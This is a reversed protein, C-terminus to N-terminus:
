TGFRVKVQRRVLRKGRGGANFEAVEKRYATRLSMLDAIPTRVLTRGNITYSQQDLSARGELVAEIASLTREAHGRPDHGDAVSVLDPVVTTQGAEIEHVDDGSAARISVAYFGPQWGSTNAATASLVHATGSATADLDISQPGRLVASVQWESAPYDAAILECKLSLGATVRDPFDKLM